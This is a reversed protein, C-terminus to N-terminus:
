KVADGIAERLNRVLLEKVSLDRVPRNRRDRGHLGLMIWREDFQTVKRGERFQGFGGRPHGLFFFRTRKPLWRDAIEVERQLIERARASYMQQCSILVSSAERIPELLDVPLNAGLRFWVFQSQTANAHLQQRRANYCQFCRGDADYISFHGPFWYDIAWARFDLVDRKRWLVEVYPDPAATSLILKRNSPLGLYDKLDSSRFRGRLNMVKHVPVAWADIEPFLEALRYRAVQGFTVPILSTSIPLPGPSYTPVEGAFLEAWDNSDLEGCSGPTKSHRAM